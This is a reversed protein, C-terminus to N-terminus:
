LKIWKTTIKSNDTEVLLNYSGAPLANINISLQNNGQKLLYKATKLIKGYNDIINIKSILESKSNIKIDIKDVAPNPYVELTSLESEYNVQGVDEHHISASRIGVGLNYYTGSPTNQLKVPRIMYFELGSLGSSDTYSTDTIMSDCLLKYSGYIESSGYVYYGLVGAEPSPSWKIQNPLGAIKDLKVNKPPKIYDSRLSPDGMLAIHVMNNYAGTPSYVSGDNNQTLRACYGINEGLGMHHVFWDPRGAWVSALAQPNSCLPARLFDNKVNWDGFYSGFLMIFIGNIPHKVMSDSFGVAQCCTFCGPGCAYAWKFSSIDFYALFPGVQISDKNVLPPFNRWANEAFPQGNFVGFNDTILGYNRMKIQNMKWNHDRTLYSNMLEIETHGFCPMDYFDVRGVELLAKSPLTTQDWKGDHPKNWNVEYISTDNNVTSDTWPGYPCAYYADAAWAGIHQWHEDPSFAGSYPVALHGLIFVSNVNPNNFYDHNIIAKIASDPMNRSLDHRIIQWGDGSLDNMLTTIGDGCPNYFLSDVLLIMIGKSHVPPAKIGAYIYGYSNVVSGYAIVRYEYATDPSVHTDTWSLTNIPLVSIPAPWLSDNKAKKSIYFVPTDIAIPKWSLTIQPPTEQVTATLQVAYDIPHQSFSNNFLFLAIILLLIRAM